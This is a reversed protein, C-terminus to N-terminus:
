ILDEFLEFKLKISDELLELFEEQLGEISETEILDSLFSDVSNILSLFVGIILIISTLYAKHYILHSIKM